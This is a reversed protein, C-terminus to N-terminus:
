SFYQRINEYSFPIFFLDKHDNYFLQPHQLNLAALLQKETFGYGADM